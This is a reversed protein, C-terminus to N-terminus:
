PGITGSPASSPPIGAGDTETGNASSSRAIDIMVRVVTGLLLLNAIMQVVVAVRALSSVAVVDGFGVTSLVTMTFYIGAVKDLQQNFASPDSASLAVYTLAFSLVFMTILLSVAEIATLTPRPSHRIRRAQRGVLWLFLAISLVFTGVAALMTSAPRVPLFAYAAVAACILLLPRLLLVSANRTSSASQGM